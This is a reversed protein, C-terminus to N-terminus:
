FPVYTHVRQILQANNKERKVATVSGHQQCQMDEKQSTDTCPFIFYHSASFKTQRQQYLLLDCALAHWMHTIHQSATLHQNLNAVLFKKSSYEHYYITSFKVVLLHLWWYCIYIFIYPHSNDHNTRNMLELQDYVNSLLVTQWWLFHTRRDVRHMTTNKGNWYIKLLVNIM